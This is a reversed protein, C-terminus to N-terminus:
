AQAKARLDALEKVSIRTYSVKEVDKPLTFTPIFKKIGSKTEVEKCSLREVGSEVLAIHGKLKGLSNNSMALFLEKRKAEKDKKTPTTGDSKVTYTKLYANLDKVTYIESESIVTVATSTNEM